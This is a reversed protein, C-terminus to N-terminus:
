FEDAKKHIQTLSIIQKADKIQQIDGLLEWLTQTQHATLAHHTLTTFKDYLDDNTMPQDPDGKSGIKQKSLRQGNRKVISVKAVRQDPLLATFQPNEKVTIRRALNLIELNTIAEDTFSDPMANGKNLVSAAIFPISFRAALPSTPKPDNLRSAIEYTEITIDAIEDPSVQECLDFCAEIVPHSYRCASYPKFYGRMIEYRTGLGDTLASLDFNHGLIEGFATLVGGQEGEFGLQSMAVALLGNHNVMGAYTNRVNAGQFAANFSPTIAYSAAINLANLMQQPDFGKIQAGIAAAGMVGWTGFPHVGKHLKTAVGVRAAIEYGIIFATLMEQGSLKEAAACALTTAAAHIAAHGFAYAHGEDMELTTGTTGYVLAAWESRIPRGTLLLRSKGPYNESAYNALATVEPAQFGGLIVGVTDRLVWGAREVIETPFDTFNTEAAFEALEKM